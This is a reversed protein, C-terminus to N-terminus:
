SGIRSHRPTYPIPLTYDIATGGENQGLPYMQPSERTSGCRDALADEDLGGDGGVFVFCQVHYVADPEAKRDIYRLRVVVEAGAAFAADLGLELRLAEPEDGAATGRIRQLEGPAHPGSSWLRENEAGRSEGAVADASPPLVWAISVAYASGADVQVEVAYDLPRDPSETGIGFFESVEDCGALLLLATIVLAARRATGWRACM